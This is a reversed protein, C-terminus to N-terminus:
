ATRNIKYKVSRIYTTGKSSQFFRNSTIAVVPISDRILVDDLYFAFTSGDLVLKIRHYATKDLATLVTCNASNTSDRVLWNSANAWVYAGHTGDSIGFNFNWTGGSTRADYVRAYIEVVGKGNTMTPTGFTLNAGNGDAQIQVYSSKLTETGAGGKTFGNNSLLGKTYSWEYDWEPLAEKGGMMRRRTVLEGM